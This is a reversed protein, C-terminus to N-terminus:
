EGVRRLKEKAALILWLRISIGEERAADKIAAHLSEPINKFLYHKM